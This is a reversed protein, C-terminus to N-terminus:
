ESNFDVPLCHVLKPFRSEALKAKVSDSFTNILFKDVGSFFAEALGKISVLVLNKSVSPNVIVEPECDDVYGINRCKGDRSLKSIASFNHLMGCRAGYLDLGTLQEICRFHIYTEAWNVFDSRSVNEKDAPMGLFAKTDIGSYILVVASGHCDNDICVRIGKKISEQIVNIIPDRGLENM